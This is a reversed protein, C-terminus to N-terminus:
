DSSTNFSRTGALIAPGATKSRGTATSRRDSYVITVGGHRLAEAESAVWVRRGREDLHNQMADWKRRLTKEVAEKDSNEGRM